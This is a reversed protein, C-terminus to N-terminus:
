PYGGKANACAKHGHVARHLYPRARYPGTGGPGRIRLGNSILYSPTSGTGVQCPLNM